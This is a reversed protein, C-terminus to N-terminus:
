VRRWKYASKYRKSPKSLFSNVITEYGDKMSIVAELYTNIQELREKKSQYHPHGEELLSLHFELTSKKYSELENFAGGEFFANLELDAKCTNDTSVDLGAIFPVLLHVRNAVPNIHIYRFNSPENLYIQM